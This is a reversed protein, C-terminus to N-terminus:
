NANHHAPLVAALWADVLEYATAVEEEWRGGARMWVDFPREDSAARALLDDIDVGTPLEIRPLAASSAAIRGKV